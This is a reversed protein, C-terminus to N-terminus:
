TLSGLLGTLALRGKRWLYWPHGWTLPGWRKTVCERTLHSRLFFVPQLLLVTILSSRTASSLLGWSLTLELGPGREKRRTVVQGRDWFQKVSRWWSCCDLSSSWSSQQAWGCRLGACNDWSCYLYTLIFITYKHSSLIQYQRYKCSVQLSSCCSVGCLCNVEDEPRISPKIGPVGTEVRLYISEFCKLNEFIVILIFFEKWLIHKM